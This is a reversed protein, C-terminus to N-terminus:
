IMSRMYQLPAIHYLTLLCFLGAGKKFFPNLYKFKENTKM